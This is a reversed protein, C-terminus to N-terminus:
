EVGHQERKSINDPDLSVELLKAELTGKGFTLTKLRGKSFKMFVYAKPDDGYEMLRQSLTGTGSSNVKGYRANPYRVRARKPSLLLIEPVVEGNARLYKSYADVNISLYSLSEKSPRKKILDKIYNETIITIGPVASQWLTLEVITHPNSSLAPAQTRKSKAAKPKYLDLFKETVAVPKDLTEDIMKWSFVAVEEKANSAGVCAILMVAISLKPLRM